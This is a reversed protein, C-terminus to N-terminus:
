EEEEPAEEGVVEKPTNAEIFSNWSKVMKNLATIATKNFDISGAACLVKKMGGQKNVEIRVVADAIVSRNALFSPILGPTLKVPRLQPEQFKGNDFDHAKKWIFKEVAHVSKSFDMLLEPSNMGSGEQTREAQGISIMIGHAGTKVTELLNLYEQAKM